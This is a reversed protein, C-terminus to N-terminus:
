SAPGGADPQGGARRAELEARREVFRWRGDACRVLIDRYRGFARIKPVGDYPDLRAFMSDVSARDGQITILPDIVLHKHVVAPAHSHQRFAAQIAVRGRIIGSAPWFLEADETWCDVFQAEYGYDLAHGYMHLTRQIEREDELLQLRSEISAIM